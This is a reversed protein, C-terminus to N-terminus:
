PTSPATPEPPAAEGFAALAELKVPVEAAALPAAPIELMLEMRAPNTLNRFLTAKNHEALHEICSLTLHAGAPWDPEECGSGACWARLLVVGSPLSRTSIGALTGPKAMQRMLRMVARVMQQGQRVDLLVPSASLDLDWGGRSGDHQWQELVYDTVIEDLDLVERRTEMGSEIALTDDLMWGSQEVLQRVRALQERLRSDAQPLSLELYYAISEITSLPQRLEHALNVLLTEKM